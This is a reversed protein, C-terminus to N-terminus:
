RAAGVEPDLAAALESLAVTLALPAPRLDRAIAAADAWARHARERQGHHLAARALRALTTATLDRLGIARCEELATDFAVLARDLDGGFAYATGLRQAVQVASLRDGAQQLVVLAGSLAAIAEPYRGEKEELEGLAARTIAAGRQNGNALHAALAAEFRERALAVQGKAAAVAGLNHLAIPSRLRLEQQLTLAQLLEVEAEDLRGLQGLLQGLNGHAVAESTTFGLQRSLTVSERLLAEGLTSDGRMQAVRGQQEVCVLEGATNGARHYQRRAESLSRDAEDLTGNRLATLGLRELVRATATRDPAGAVVRLAEDLTQRAAPYTGREIQLSGREALLSAEIGAAGSARALALGEEVLRDGEDLRGAQQLLRAGVIAWRARAVGTLGPHAGSADLRELAETTAGRRQDYEIRLTIERVEAAPDGGLRERARDLLAGTRRAEPSCLCAEAELLDLWTAEAASLPGAARIQGALRVVDGLPGDVLLTKALHVLIRTATPTDGARIALDLAISLNSAEDRARLIAEDPLEGGWGPSAYWAVLARHVTADPTVRERAYERISPLVEFLGRGGERSRVLSHDMLDGLLQAGPAPLIAEALELPFPGPLVALCGLADRQRAGLLEWSAGIAARLSAHRPPRDVATTGLLDLHQGARALLQAPRMVRLRPAALEIALPLGGFLALLEAIPGADAPSPVFGAASAARRLLLRSAAHAELDALSADRPPLDLPPVDILQEDILGLRIRSTVVIRVDPAQPRWAVLEAALAEVVQEANDLVVLAPGLAELAEGVHENPAARGAALARGVALRATAGTTAAQLDVFVGPLGVCALLERALRTKGVGGPGTLTWLGPGDTLAAVLTAVLSERGALPGTSGAPPPAPRPPAAPTVQGLFRYGVGPVTEIWTPARPADDLAVRLKRVAQFLADETVHVGPWLRAHLDERRLLVGPREVLVALLELVKTQADLTVGDRTLRWQDVDLVFPGFPYVGPM